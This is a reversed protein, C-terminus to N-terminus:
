AGASGVAQPLPTAPATSEPVTLERSKEGTEKLWDSVSSVIDEPNKRLGCEWVTAVRWGANILSERNRADREVNADFKQKWFETRTSPTTTLSCGSHRHWFCGHVFIAANWKPLVIDPKGPLDKRHLRYRFGAKFLLRRLQMEPKTNRGKIGRMMRSRVEPSVIDAM